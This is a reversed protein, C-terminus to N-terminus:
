VGEPVTKEQTLGVDHFSEIIYAFGKFRLTGRIFTHSDEM